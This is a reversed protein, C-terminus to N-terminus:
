RVYLVEKQMYQWVDHITVSTNEWMASLILTDGGCLHVYISAFACYIDKTNLKFQSIIEAFLAEDLVRRLLNMFSKNCLTLAMCSEIFEHTPIKLLGRVDICVSEATYRRGDVLRYGEMLFLSNYSIAGCLKKFLEVTLEGGKIRTVYNNISALAMRETKKANYTVCKKVEM